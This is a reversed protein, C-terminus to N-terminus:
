ENYSVKLSEICKSICDFLESTQTLCFPADLFLKIKSKESNQLEKMEEKSQTAIVRSVMGLWHHVKM